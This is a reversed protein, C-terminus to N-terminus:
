WVTILGFSASPISFLTSGSTQVTQGPMDTQFSLIMVTYLAMITVTFWLIPLKLKSTKVLHVRLKWVKESIVGNTM